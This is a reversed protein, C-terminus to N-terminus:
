ILLIQGLDSLSRPCKKYYIFDSIYSYSKALDNKKEKPSPIPQNKLAPIAPFHNEDFFDTFEHTEYYSSPPTQKGRGFRAMVLLNQPRSLAVYFMRMADFVPIKDLPEGEKEPILERVIREKLDARFM